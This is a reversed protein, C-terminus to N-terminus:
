IHILSLERAADLAKLDSPRALWSEAALALIRELHYFFDYRDGHLRVLLSFFHPFHEETRRRFEAWAASEVSAVFEAELRPLLRELSRQAELEMKSADIVTM